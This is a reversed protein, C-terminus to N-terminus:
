VRDSPASAQNSSKDILHPRAASMAPEADILREAAEAIDRWARASLEDGIAEAIEASEMLSTICEAGRRAVYEQAVQWVLADDSLSDDDIRSAAPSHGFDSM